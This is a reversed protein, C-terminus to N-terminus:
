LSDFKNRGGSRGGPISISPTISFGLLHHCVWLVLLVRALCTLCHRSTGPMFTCLPESLTRTFDIICMHKCVTVDRNMYDQLPLATVDMSTRFNVNYNDFPSRSDWRLFFCCCGLETLRFSLLLLGAPKLIISATWAMVTQPANNM